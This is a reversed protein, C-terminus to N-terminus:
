GARGARRRCVTLRVQRGGRLYRVKDMLERMLLLGRGGPSTLGREGRPDAVAEPHFGPGPDEIGVQFVGGRARVSVRVLAHPNGACGHEIANALCEDVALRLKEAWIHRPLGHLRALQAILEAAPVVLKFSAPLSFDVRTRMGAELSARRWSQPLEPAEAPFVSALELPGFPPSLAESFGVKLLRAWTEEDCRPIALTLRAGYTERLTSLAAWPLDHPNSGVVLVGAPPAKELAEWRSPDPLPRLCDAEGGLAAKLQLSLDRNFDWVYFLRRGDGPPSPRECSLDATRSSSM